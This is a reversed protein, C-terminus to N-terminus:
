KLCWVLYSDTLYNDLMQAEIKIRYFPSFLLHTHNMHTKFSKQEYLTLTQISSPSWLQRWEERHQVM